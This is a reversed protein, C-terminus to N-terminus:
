GEVLKAMAEIEEEAAAEQVRQHSGGEVGLPAKAELCVELEVASSEEAEAAVELSAGELEGPATLVVAAAVAAVAVMPVAAQSVVVCVEARRVEEQAGVEMPVVLRVVAEPAVM